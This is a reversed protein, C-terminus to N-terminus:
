KAAIQETKAAVGVRLADSYDSLYRQSLQFQVAFVMSSM